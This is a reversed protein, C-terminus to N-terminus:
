EERVITLYQLVVGSDPLSWLKWAECLTFDGILSKGRQHFYRREGQRDDFVPKGKACDSCLRLACERIM